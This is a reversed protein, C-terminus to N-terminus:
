RPWFRVEAPGEITVGNDLLEVPLGNVTARATREYPSRVVIGGPAAPAQRVSFLIVDNEAAVEYSVKGFHTPLGAVKLCEGDQFWAALIGAGLVLAGRDDDEYVLVNRAFKVFESGVWTHPMDGIFGPKRPDRRVVEAWHLWGPPRVHTRFFGLIEHAQDRRGMLLLASAIRIEYPTYVDWPKRGSARDRHFEMYRDFTRELAEAPVCDTVACPFVGIATSTPDFDGLEVCGPVFDIGHKEITLDLSNRLSRSFDAALAAFEDAEDNKGLARAIEVADRLGRAIFFCDWYSHMPKASYGEHSISEPILGYYARKEETQYESTMRKARLTRIHDVVKCVTPYIRELFEHDKTFRYYEAVIYLFQGHSDHEPVPDAGRRDVVCPVAGNPPIYSAFWEIFQRVEETCGWRLLAASTLAGDRMWSREYSRSGPQIGPGDRNVLIYAINAKLLREYDRVATPLSVAAGAEKARWVGRARMRQIDVDRQTRLATPKDSHPSVLTVSMREWPRLQLDYAFAGSAFGFSDTLDDRDPLSNQALYKTIDGVHFPAAGVRTAPPVSELRVSDNILAQDRSLSLRRIPTVGGITNLMQYPPNVQFPRLAVYLTCTRTDPSRNAIEYTVCLTESDDETMFPTVRLEFSGHSRTVFPLPLTDGDLGQTTQGDAWTWLRGDAYLMPELSFSRKDLEVAGDESILAERQGGAAGVVTWYGAEGRTTRPFWGLPHDKAIARFFANHGDGFSLDKVELANLHYCGGPGDHMVIRLHRAESDPLYHYTTGGAAQAVEELTSWSRGDDSGEIRFRTPYRQEDWRLVLGGFERQQGFDLAIWQEGTTTSRWGRDGSTVNRAPFGRVESSASVAPVGSYSRVPPLERFRLDDFLVEGKGGTYAAVVFQLTVAKQLDGGGRPGWAFRIHRKRLRVQTWESPFEYGIQNNWWVNEGSEDGLKFELNNVPSKGRIWFSFEYNEPLPLSIRKEAIVFGGRGQFDYEMRLAKGTRGEAQSLRLVVGESTIPRWSSLDEFDDLRATEQSVASLSLAVVFAIM